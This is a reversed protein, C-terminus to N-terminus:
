FLNKLDTSGFGGVGRPTEDLDDVEEAEMIIL